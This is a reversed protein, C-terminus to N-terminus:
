CMDLSTEIGQSNACVWFMWRCTKQDKATTGSFRGLCRHAFRAGVIMSGQRFLQHFSVEM